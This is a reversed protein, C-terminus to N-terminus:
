GGDLDPGLGVVSETGERADEIVRHLQLQSPTLETTSGLQTGARVVYLHSTFQSTEATEQRLYDVSPIEPPEGGAATALAVYVEGNAAPGVAALTLGHSAHVAATAESMCAISAVEGGHSLIIGVDGSASESLRVSVAVADIASLPLESATAQEDSLHCGTFEDLREAAAEPKGAAELEEEDVQDAKPFDADAVQNSAAIPLPQLDPSSETDGGAVSGGDGPQAGCAALLTVSIGLVTFRHKM